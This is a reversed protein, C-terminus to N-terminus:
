RSRSFWSRTRCPTSGSPVLASCWRRCRVHIGHIPRRRAPVLHHVHRLRPRGPGVRGPADHERSQAVAGRRIGGRHRSHVLRRRDHIDHHQRQEDSQRGSRRPPKPQRSLGNQLRISLWLVLSTIPMFILLYFYFFPFDGVKPTIRSYIPSCLTFLIDAAVLAAITASTIPHAAIMSRSRSTPETMTDDQRERPTTARHNTVYTVCNWGHQTM